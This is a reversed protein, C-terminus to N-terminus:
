ARGSAIQRELDDVVAKAEALGVGTLERYAKIAAIKQRPGQRLIEKVPELDDQGPDAIGLNTMILDLKRELRQLRMALEFASPSGFGFLGM